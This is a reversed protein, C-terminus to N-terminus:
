RTSQPPPPTYFPCQVLEKTPRAGLGPARSEDKQVKRDVEELLGLVAGRFDAITRVQPTRRKM